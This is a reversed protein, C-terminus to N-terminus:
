SILKTNWYKPSKKLGYLSKCLKLVKNGRVEYGEPKEMYVIEDIDGNLFAGVVDMQHVQLDNHISVALLIRLTQVKAVPSYVDFYDFDEDQQFGRAVLRAKFIENEGDLKRKFVWKSTIVKSDKPREIEIWTNNDHLENLEKTIAM